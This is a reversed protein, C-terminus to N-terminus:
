VTAADEQRTHFLALLRGSAATSVDECVVVNGPDDKAVGLAAAQQLLGALYICSLRCSVM